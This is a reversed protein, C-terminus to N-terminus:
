FKRLAAKPKSWSEEQMSSSRCSRGVKRHDDSTLFREADLSTPALNFNWPKEKAEQEYLLRCDRGETERDGNQLTVEADM